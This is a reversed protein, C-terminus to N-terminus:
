GSIAWEPEWRARSVSVSLGDIGIEAPIPHSLFFPMSETFGYAGSDLIAYIDGAGPPPLAVGSALVDLGTCLPGVLDTTVLSGGLRATSAGVAVVRQQEGVLVPRALHHIGGDMIAITRGRRVKSRVVRTLYAGAPGVLWRGPELLVRTGRLPPRDAWAALEAAIGEGLAAIDLAHESDTYPIGLGGGMDILRVTLGHDRALGESRAALARLGGVLVTADLLNSAGFAHFGLVQFRGGPGLPGARRLIGLAEDAEDDTLGFKVSGAAGIIPREETAADVALRLLLGSGRPTPSVMGLLADLEELSEVTLARIGARLGVELERDTKGPGTFCIASPDFGARLAAGLEGGSAVDAGIGAARLTALVAPSPNAKVAFAIETREPMAARLAAARQRIVDLDYVYLPSGHRALLMEPDHGAVTPGAEISLRAPRTLATV